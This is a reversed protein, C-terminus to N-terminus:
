EGKEQRRRLAEALSKAPGREEVVKKVEPKKVVVREGTVVPAVVEAKIVAERDVVAKEMPAMMREALNKKVSEVKTEGGEDVVSEKVDDVLGDAVSEVKGWDVFIYTAVGALVVLAAAVSIGLVVGFKLEKKERKAEEPVVGQEREIEAVAAAAFEKKEKFFRKTEACDAATVWDVFYSHWVLSEKVVRGRLVLKGMQELNVPGKAYEGITFFWEADAPLVRTDSLVFSPAADQRAVGPLDPRVEVKTTEGFTNNLVVTTNDGPHFDDGASLSSLSMKRVLRSNDGALDLSTLLTFTEEEKIETLDVARLGILAESSSPTRDEPKTRILSEVWLCLESSLDERYVSLPQHNGMMHAAMVQVSSEGVFPYQGVLLYYLICGLAYLDSQVTPKEGNFLEPAMVYISGMMKGGSEEEDDEPKSLGFDYVKAEYHDGSSLCLMINEPKIDCHLVGAEHAAELAKLIHGAVNRLDSAHLLHRKVLRDLSVGDLLEMVIEDYEETSSIDYISVINPHQMAALVRAERLLQARMEDACLDGDLRKLAVDRDLMEDHARYVSGFGGSGLENLITYRESM